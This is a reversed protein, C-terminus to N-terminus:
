DSVSITQFNIKRKRALRQNRTIPKTNVNDIKFLNM